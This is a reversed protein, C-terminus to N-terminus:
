QAHYWMKETAMLTHTISKKISDQSHMHLDPVTAFISGIKYDFPLNKNCFHFQKAVSFM